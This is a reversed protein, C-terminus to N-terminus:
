DRVCRISMCEMLGGWYNIYFSTTFHVLSAFYANAMAVDSSWWRGYEGLDDFYGSWGLRGGPLGSFGSSNSGNWSPVDLASSKAAHGAINTGGLYDILSSWDANTPVHFGIPCLGRMDSVAHHNYLRGYVSLSSLDGWTEGYIAQAGEETTQYENSSLGGPILEGNRYNDSALNEKFWCQNGIEVLPYVKRDYLIHSVGQCSGLGSCDVGDCYLGTCFAGDVDWSDAFTLSNGDDCPLGLCAGACFTGNCVEAISDWVDDFTLNNGDDCPSLPCHPTGYVCLSADALLPYSWNGVYNCSNPDPCGYLRRTEWGSGNWIVVEGKNFPGLNPLLAQGDLGAPGAAGTAGVPGAPGPAGQPGQEGQPGAAGAPGTAGVPGAVGQPGAPGAPGTAGAPGVNGQPGAVGQPGAPGAPGTAGAPGAPGTAGTPGAVGQPGALGAPGAPGTPGAPGVLIPTSLTSGNSFTFTLTNDPNVDVDIVGFFSDTGGTGTSGTGAAAQLEAIQNTLILLYTELTLGDITLSEPTFDSAFEALLALLDDTGIYGNEDSDPNYPYNVTVPGSSTQALASSAFSISISIVCFLPLFATSRRM